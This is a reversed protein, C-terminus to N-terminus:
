LGAATWRTQHPRLWHSCSGVIAYLKSRYSNVHLAAADEAASRLTAIWLETDDDAGLRQMHEAPLPRTDATAVQEM